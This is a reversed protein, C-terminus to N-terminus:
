QEDPTQVAALQESPTFFPPSDSTSQPPGQPRHPVPLVQTEAVSQTLATQPAPPVQLAGLQVSPILFPPSPSTSQPPPVQERQAVPRV